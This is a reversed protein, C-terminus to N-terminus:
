QILCKKKNQKSSDKPVCGAPLTDMDLPPGEGCERGEFDIWVAKCRFTSTPWLGHIVASKQGVPLDLTAVVKDATYPAELVRVRLLKMGPPVEVGEWFISFGDDTPDGSHLRPGARAEAMVSTRIQRVAIRLRLSWWIGDVLAPEILRYNRTTGKLPQTRTRVASSTVFPSNM